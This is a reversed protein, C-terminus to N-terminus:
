FARGLPEPKEDARREFETAWMPQSPKGGVGSRHRLGAASDGRQLPPTRERSAARLPAKRRVTAKILSLERAL